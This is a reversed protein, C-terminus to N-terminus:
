YRVGKEERGGEFIIPKRSKKLQQKFDRESLGTHECGHRGGTTRKVKKEKQLVRRCLSHIFM